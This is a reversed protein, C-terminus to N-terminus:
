QASGIVATGDGVESVGAPPSCGNGLATVDMDVSFQGEARMSSIVWAQTAYEDQGPTHLNLYAWGSVAGNMHQPYRDIDAVSTLSTPPFIYPAPEFTCTCQPLGTVANEQEDFMVVERAHLDKEPTHAACTANAGTKGERWVKFFTQFNGSGGSIWRAAFTSPLPQRGDLKPTSASQYRSYFTREFGADYAAPNDRRQQSTGGEPVARIHVLPGGEAFRSARTVQQYDGALVNDWLVEDRWYETENGIKTSCIRVVDITAYGVANEHVNGINECGPIVNGLPPIRGNTFAETMHTVYVNDIAGPLRDCSSLDLTTNPDSYRGRKQIQTGTGREPAIHGRAIVDFLNISQVDYGTLYINFGIVPFARDTWLTVHAIQDRPSVNTITFLTTTGNPDDLDVEFYPLLLTAAPLPAIDCSDDNRTTAGTATLTLSLTLLSPLLTKM